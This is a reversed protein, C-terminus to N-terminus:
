GSQPQWRIQPLQAFVGGPPTGDYWPWYPETDQCQPRDDRACFIRVHFHNTHKNGEKPEVMVAAAASLFEDREGRRRGEMLLRARIPKAVFAYQLRAHPDRLMSSILAWNRADDFYLPRPTNKGVGDFGFAVFRRFTQSRGRADSMFFAIDADRGTQHSHHGELRGGDRASLEGVSLQSGPFRAAIATGTRELLAVLESTGFFHGSAACHPMHRLTASARLRAPRSLKGDWPMGTSTSASAAYVGGGESAASPVSRLAGCFALAAIPLSLLRRMGKAGM